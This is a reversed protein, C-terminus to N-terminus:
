SRALEAAFITRPEGTTVASAYSTSTMMRSEDVLACRYRVADKTFRVVEWTPEGFLLNYVTVAKVRMQRDIPGHDLRVPSYALKPLSGFVVCRDIM